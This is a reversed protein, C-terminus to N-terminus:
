ASARSRLVPAPAHIVQAPRGPGAGTAPIVSGPHEREYAALLANIGATTRTGPLRSTWIESRSAQRGPRGALWQALADPGGEQPAPEPPAPVRPAPRPHESTGETAAQRLWAMPVRWAGGVRTGPMQGASLVKYVTRQDLNLVIAAEVGSVFMRRSKLIKEATAPPQNRAPASPM